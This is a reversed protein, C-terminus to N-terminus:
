RGQGQAATFILQDNEVALQVGWAEMIAKNVNQAVKSKPNSLDRMIKDSLGSQQTDKVDVSAVTKASSKKLKEFAM